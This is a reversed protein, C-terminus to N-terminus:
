HPLPKRGVRLALPWRVKRPTEPNGWVTALKQHLEPIPDIGTAQIHRSTASWTGCYGVLERLTWQVEMSFSPVGLDPYPFPITRYGAEVFRREPPWFPGVVNQYFEQAIDDVPKGDVEDIGYAWVAILGGPQLVRNVEAHFRPQDFWHVAQAVTVLGVSGPELGSHEAPALRYEVRPHPRAAAIQERSADTAIVKAFRDGLDVSAQGNGAACDWVVSSPNALSALYDLLAAPYRPRFGAYQGAVGSFHDSFNAKMIAIRGPKV